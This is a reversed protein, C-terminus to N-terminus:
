LQTKWRAAWPWGTRACRMWTWAQRCFTRSDSLERVFAGNAMNLVRSQAGIAADAFDISFDIELM